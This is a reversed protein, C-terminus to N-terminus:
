RKLLGGNVDLTAGTIYAAMPSALFLAAYAIDDVHGLRGLPIMAEIRQRSESSLMDGRSDIQGPTISNVTINYPAFDRSLTKTMALMGGKSAAYHVGGSVGGTQATISSINIIRGSRQEKMTPAFARVMRYAGTLNANLIRDWEDLDIKDYDGPSVIGANNILVDVRGWQALIQTAAQTVQDSDGVDVSASVLGTPNNRQTLLEAAVTDLQAQTRALLAVKAGAQWFREAMAKGLGRNAGTIVVVQGKFDLLAALSPHLNTM